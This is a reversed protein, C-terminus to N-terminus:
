PRLDKSLENARRELRTLTQDYGREAASRHLYDWDIDRQQAVLLTIAQIADGSDLDGKYWNQCAATRDLIIDEIGIVFISSGNEVEIENIRDASGDLDDSPFEVMVECDPHRYYRDMDHTFGLARMIRKVVDNDAHVMDIDMTTYGGATYTEVAMGGVVIPRYQGLFLFAGTIISAVHSLLDIRATDQPPVSLRARFEVLSQWLVEDSVTLM